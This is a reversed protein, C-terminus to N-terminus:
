GRCRLAVEGTHLLPLQRPHNKPGKLTYAQHAQVHGSWEGFRNKLHMRGEAERGTGKQVM